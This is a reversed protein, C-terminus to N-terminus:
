HNSHWRPPNVQRRLRWPSQEVAQFDVNEDKTNFLQSTFADNVVIAEQIRCRGRPLLFEVDVEPRRDLAQLRSRTMPHFFTARQDIDQKVDVTSVDVGLRSLLPEDLHPNLTATFQNLLNKLLNYSEMQHIITPASMKSM